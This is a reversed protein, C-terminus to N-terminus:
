PMTQESKGNYPIIKQLEPHILLQREFLEEPPTNSIEIVWDRSHIRAYYTQNKNCNIKKTDKKGIYDATTLAIVHQGNQLILRMYSDRHGETLRVGNMYIQEYNKPIIYLICENALEDHQLDFEGPTNPALLTMDDAKWIPGYHGYYRFGDAQLELLGYDIEKVVGDDDYVILAHYPISETASLPLPIFVETVDGKERYVDVNWKDNRIRPEGLLQHVESRETQGPIVMELEDNFPNEHYFRVPVCGMLGSCIGTVLTCRILYSIHFNITGM